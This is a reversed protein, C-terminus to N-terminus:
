ITGFPTDWRNFVMIFDVRSVKQLDVQIWPSTETKSSATKIGWMDHDVIGDVAYEPGHDKINGQYVSSM